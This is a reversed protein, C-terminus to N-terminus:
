TYATAAGETSRRDRCQRRQGPDAVGSVARARRRLSRLEPRGVDGGARSGLGGHARRRDRHLDREVFEVGARCRAPFGPRPRQEAARLAGGPARGHLNPRDDHTRGAWPAPHTRSFATVASDAKPRATTCAAVAVAIATDMSLYQAPSDNTRVSAAPWKSDRAPRPPPETATTNGRPAWFRRHRTAACCSM